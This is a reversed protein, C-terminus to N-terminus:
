FWFLLRERPNDEDPQQETQIIPHSHLKANIFSATMPKYAVRAKGSVDGLFRHIASRRVIAEFSSRNAGGSQRDIQCLQIHFPLKNTIITVLITPLDRAAGPGNLFFPTFGFLRRQFPVSKYRRGKQPENKAAWARSIKAIELAQLAGPMESLAM